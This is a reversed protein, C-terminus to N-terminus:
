LAGEYISTDEPNRYPQHGNSRGRGGAPLPDRWRRDRLWTKSQPIFRLPTQEGFHHHALAVAADLLQDATVNAGKIADKWLRHTEPQAVPHPHAEWFKVFEPDADPDAKKTARKKPKPPAPPALEGLPFLEDTITEQNYHNDQYYSHGAGPSPHDLERVLDLGAGPSGLGAGPSAQDREQVLDTTSYDPEQVLEVGEPIALRYCTREGRTRAAVIDPRERAIWGGQELLTLHTAITSRGLGTERALVTLSPTRREPIEANAAEAIDSLTLMILRSPAPLNSARVARNIEWKTAM